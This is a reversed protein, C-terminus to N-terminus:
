MEAYSGLGKFIFSIGMVIVAVAGAKYLIGRMRSSIFSVLIGFLLLSPATGLGFFLSILMGSFLSGTGAAAVFVTYSLGCPLLGMLLGLPLSQRVPDGSLLGRAYRLVIAGHGELWAAGPLLNAISLGMFIMFIGAAVMVVHQIGAIRGAVNVFSGALGMVGGILVYTIIRGTNYLLHASSSRWPRIGARGFTQAAVLPGCMGICHGFGGFLGTLFALLYGTEM